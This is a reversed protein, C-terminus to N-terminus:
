SQPDDLAFELSIVVMPSERHVQESGVTRSAILVAVALLVAPFSVWPYRLDNPGTLSSDLFPFWFAVLAPAFYNLTGMRTSVIQDALDQLSVSFSSCEVRPLRIDRLRKLTYTGFEVILVKVMLRCCVSVM